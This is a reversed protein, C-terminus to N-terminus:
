VIGYQQSYDDHGHSKGSLFIPTLQWKKRWPIKGVWPDFRSEQRAPHDKVLQAVLFAWQVVVVVVTNNVITMMNYM